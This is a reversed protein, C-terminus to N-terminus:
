VRSKKNEDRRRNDLFEEVKNQLEEITAENEIIFDSKQKKEEISMQSNIIKLAEEKPINDRKMVRELQIKQSAYVLAIKDFLYELKIEFLLPIDVFVLKEMKQQEIQKRIEEIIAPHMISNLKTVNEKNNFVLKRLNSRSIDSKNNSTKELIGEGFEAIIMKKIKTEKIVERSIKDADIVNYGKLRLYNSVTSKGTGIGGTIGIIM